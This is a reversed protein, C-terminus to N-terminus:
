RIEKIRAAKGRLNRLYYLKARRVKGRRKVEIKEIKPTHLPFTREVGVGSSIKRVTFTESIGGGHRKIVVGEFVQIRERTGEVIRVHVRVTDGPRFTPLDTRLQSKTIAEILKHNSM